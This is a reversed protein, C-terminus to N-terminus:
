DTNWNILLNQLTSRHPKFSSILHLKFVISHECYQCQNYGLNKDYFGPSYEIYGQTPLHPGVGWVRVRNLVFVGSKGARNLVSNRNKIGQKFCTGTCSVISLRPASWFLKSPVSHGRPAINAAKHWSTTIVAQLQITVYLFHSSNFM